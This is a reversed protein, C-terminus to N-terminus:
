PDLSPCFHTPRMISMRTIRAGPCKTTSVTGAQTIAIIDRERPSPVIIPQLRITTVRPSFIPLCLSEYACAVTADSMVAIVMSDAEVTHSGTEVVCIMDDPTAPVIPNSYPFSPSSKLVIFCIPIAHTSVRGTVIM